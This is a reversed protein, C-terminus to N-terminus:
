AHRQRGLRVRSRRHASRNREGPGARIDHRLVITKLTLLACHRSAVNPVGVFTLVARKRGRLYRLPVHLPPLSLSSCLMSHKPASNHEHAFLLYPLNNQCASPSQSASAAAKLVCGAGSLAGVQGHPIIRAFFLLQQM